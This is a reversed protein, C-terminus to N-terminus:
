LTLEDISFFVANQTSISLEIRTLLKHLLSYEDHPNNAQGKWVARRTPLRM